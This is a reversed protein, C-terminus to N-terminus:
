RIPVLRSSGVVRINENWGPNGAELAADDKAGYDPAAAPLDPMELEYFEAPGHTSVRL